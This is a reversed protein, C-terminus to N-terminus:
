PVTLTYTLVANDTGVFASAGNLRPVFLGLYSTIVSGSSVSSTLVTQSSFSKSINNFSSGTSSDQLQLALPHVFDSSVYVLLTGTTSSFDAFQPQLQYPASYTVGGAGPVVTLGPNAGIGLANVTGFSLNYDSAQAILTGALTFQVATQMNELPNNLTLTDANTQQMTSGNYSIYTLKASDTGFFAASGNQNSVFLGLWVTITQNKTLGPPPIIWTPSTSSISVQTYSGANSCNSTCSWVQLIQPHAFNTSVYAGAVGPNNNGTGSLVVNYPTTYMVGGTAAIVTAGTVPTGLGLGNVTGFGTTRNNKNGVLAIGGPASQLNVDQGKALLASGLIALLLVSLVRCFGLPEPSHSDRKELQANDMPWQRGAANIWQRRPLAHVGVKM